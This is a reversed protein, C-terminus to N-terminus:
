GGVGPLLLLLVLESLLVPLVLLAIRPAVVLWFFAFRDINKWRGFAAREQM